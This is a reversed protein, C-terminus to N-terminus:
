GKEFIFTGRPATARIAKKITNIAEAKKMSGMGDYGRGEEVAKKYHPRKDVLAKTLEIGLHVNWVITIVLWESNERRTASAVTNGDADIFRIDGYHNDNLVKIIRKEM